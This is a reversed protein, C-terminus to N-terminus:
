GWPGSLSTPPDSISQINRIRVANRYRYGMLAILGRQSIERGNRDTMIIEACPKLEKGTESHVTYAPLDELDLRDELSFAWGREHFAMGLLKACALASSGWLFHGHEPEEGLESFTFADIEDSGKGYPLRM